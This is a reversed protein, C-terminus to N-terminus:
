TFAWTVGTIYPLFVQINMNLNATNTGDSSKVQVRIDNGSVSLQVDGAGGGSTIKAGVRAVTPAGNSIDFYWRDFFAGSGVNQTVGGARVEIFGRGFKSATTSPTITVQTTFASVDGNISFNKQFGNTGNNTPELVVSNELTQDLPDFSGGGSPTDLINFNDAM